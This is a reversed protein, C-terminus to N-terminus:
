KPFIDLVIGDVNFDLLFEKQDPNKFNNYPNYIDLDVFEDGDGNGIAWGVVQGAETQEVGLSKYVENLFLHGEAKLKQNAFKELRVLFYENQENDNRWQCSDDGFFVAYQSPMGMDDVMEGPLETEIEKFNVPKKKEDVIQMKGEFPKKFRIYNDVDEGFEDKVRRRYAKFAQDVTNYAAVLAVNRKNLIRNSGILATLSMGGLILAPAFEKAVFFGTEALALVKAQAVTNEPFEEKAAEASADIAKLYAETTELLEGAELWAKYSLIGSTFLGVSGLGLLIEPSHKQMMFTKQHM